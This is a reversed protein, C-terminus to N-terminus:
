FDILFRNFEVGPGWSAGLLGLVRGLGKWAWFCPPISGGGEAVRKPLKEPWTLRWSGSFPREFLM